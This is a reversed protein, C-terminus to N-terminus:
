RRAEGLLRAYLSAIRDVIGGIEFGAARQRGSRGLRGALGPDNRLRLLATSLAVDDGPDALLGESGDRVVEPIGGVRTAVVPLGRALADLLVTGLAEFASPLFFAQLRRWVPEPDVQFPLIEVRDGLAADRIAGELVGRLEGEGAWVFRIGPDAEAVRAVTRVWTRPDKQPTMAALTGVVWEGDAPPPVPDGSPLEVGSPIRTIRGAGVGGRRLSAEVAGSIAIYHDALAAYKWRGFLGRPPLELRRTVLIPGAGALRAALGGVAHARATHLHIVDPREHRIAGIVTRTAAPDLDSRMACPVVRLGDAAARQALPGDPAAVVVSDVGRRQLSRALLHVQREGGRWTPAPDVHLIRV